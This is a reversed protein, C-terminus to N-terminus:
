GEVKGHEHGKIKNYKWLHADIIISFVFTAILYYFITGFIENIAYGFIFFVDVTLLCWLGVRLFNISKM